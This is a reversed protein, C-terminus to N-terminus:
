SGAGEAPPEVIKDDRKIEIARIVDELADDTLLIDGTGNAHKPSRVLLTVKVGPKFLGLIADLRQALEAHLRDRPDGSVSAILHAEAASALRTQGGSATRHTGKRM